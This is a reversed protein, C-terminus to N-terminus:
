GVVTSPPPRVPCRPELPELKHRAHAKAWEPQRLVNGHGPAGWSWIHTEPTRPAPDAEGPSLAEQRCLGGAPSEGAEEEQLVRSSDPPGGGQGGRVRVGERLGRGRLGMVGAPKLTLIQPGSLTSPPHAGATAPSPRDPVAQPVRGDKGAPVTKGAQSECGSLTLPLPTPPPRRPPLVPPWCWQGRLVYGGAHVNHPGCPAPTTVTISLAPSTAATGLQPGPLPIARSPSVPRTEWGRGGRPGASELM